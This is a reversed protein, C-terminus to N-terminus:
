CSYPIKTGLPVGEQCWSGSGSRFSKSQQYGEGQDHHVEEHGQVQQGGPFKPPKNLPTIM